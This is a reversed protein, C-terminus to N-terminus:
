FEDIFVMEPQGQRKCSSLEFAHNKRNFYILAKKWRHEFVPNSLMIDAQIKALSYNAYRNNKMSTKKRTKTM